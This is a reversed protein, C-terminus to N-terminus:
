FLGAQRERRPLDKPTIILEPFTSQAAGNLSYGVSVEEFDFGTFIERVEPTDNISLIFKGKLGRLLSALVEFDSSAFMAKGYDDECGFYPPDFYFLVGERDYRPIFDQFPLNEIVVGALREHAREIMEELRTINFRSPTLPSVGFSQGTVKGGFALRQLYLFRSARQIDTLTDPPTNALREFELRSAISYRMYSVFPDYHRQMIRFLNAVEGSYDNIIEAKPAYQRRLFVGGMGVFAEAYSEHPVSNILEILRKALKIKGGQWAAVPLAPTVLRRIFDNM